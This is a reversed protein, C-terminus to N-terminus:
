LLVVVSKKPSQKTFRPPFTIRVKSHCVPAKSDTVTHETILKIIQQQSNLHPTKRTTHIHTHTLSLPLSLSLSLSLSLTVACRRAHTHTHTSAHTHSLSLSLPPISLTVACRRTHTLAQTHTHSLSLSLPPPYLPDCRLTTHTHTHTHTNADRTHSLPLCPWRVVTALTSCVCVLMM